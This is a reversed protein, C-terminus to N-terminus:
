VYESRESTTRQSRTSLAMRSAREEVFSCGHNLGADCTPRQESEDIGAALPRDFQHASLEKSVVLLRVRRAQEDDPAPTCQLGASVTADRV